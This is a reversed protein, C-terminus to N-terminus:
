RASRILVVDSTLSGRAIALRKGSSSLAFSFIRGSGFRTIQQMEGDLSMEWVNSVGERDRLLLLARSDRKWGMPRYGVHPETPDDNMIEFRKLISGGPLAMVAVGRRPPDPAGYYNFAVMSSDPSIIPFRAVLSAMAEPSGGDLAVRWLKNSSGGLGGYVIWKGDICCDPTHEGEGSTLRKPDDGNLDM